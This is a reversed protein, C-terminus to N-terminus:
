DGRINKNLWERVSPEPLAGLFEDVVKGNKFLKVSPISMIGYKQSTIRNEDVNLKALIFKGNYEKALKELIPSLMLCPMCNHHIIGNAVFTRTDNNLILSIFDYNKGTYKKITKIKDFYIKKAPNSRIKLWKKYPIADQPPFAKRGRLWNNVVSYNLNLKKSIENASLNNSMRLAQLRKSKRDNIKALREELYAKALASTLKKTYSYKFGISAYALASELNIKLWIRLLKSTKGDKRKYRKEEKIEVKRIKVNFNNLLSTFEKVFIEPSNEADSSFHFEIPNIHVKNYSARDKREQTRINIRPGDGGLFGQLFARQIEKPGNLIWEPIKLGKFFKEGEIGGLAKFLIFLATRSVRVRFCRQIFQRNGIKGKKAIQRRFSPHFGLFELDHTIEKLDEKSGVFFEILRENNKTRSLSGDTLLFGILSALIYATEQNYHIDLLKKEKLENIYSQRNLNLKESIEKIKQETLVPRNDKEFVYYFDSFLYVSLLDGIQLDEAKKFGKKTLILHDPTCALERGCETKIKIMQNLVVQHTMKVDSIIEQFNKDFSLIRSGERVERIDKINPNFILKSRPVLCWEAWFDVVVPIKKSQEIVKEQFNEDNIEIETQNIASGKMREMLKKLKERKIRELEDMKM